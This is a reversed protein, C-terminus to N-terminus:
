SARDTPSTDLEEFFRQAKSSAPKWEIGLQGLLERLPLDLRRAQRADEVEVEIEFDVRGGPLRTRDLEFTADVPGDPTDMRVPGVRTRENEFSGVHELPRDALTRRVADVLASAHCGALVELPSVCEGLIRGAQDAELEVETEAKTTLPGNSGSAPGKATLFFRGSEERLRLAFGADRLQGDRTDFFHNRQLASSPPRTTRTLLAAELAGLASRDRVQFKFEIERADDPASDAMDRGGAASSEHPRSSRAATRRQEAPSMPGGRQLTRRTAKGLAPTRRGSEDLRTRIEDWLARYAVAPSSSPAFDCLPRRRPGMQEVLTSSPIRAQLFGLAQETGWDCVQRHLSRRSDVMSFFPLVSPRRKRGKLHKMLQALTRLSLTTPITPVVLADVTDFLTESLPTVNPGCDLFLFAYEESLADLVERMRREPKAERGLFRDIKRDAFSAPLVDLHEFDSGLILTGPDRRGELVRRSGGAKKPRVRFYYTSAGQPDLDWLLTPMGERAAIYALNVATATKGVGGKMNYIAVSKM